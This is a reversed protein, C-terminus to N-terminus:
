KKTLLDLLKTNQNILQDVQNKLRVNEAQLKDVQMLLSDHSAVKEPANNQYTYHRELSRIKVLLDSGSVRLPKALKELSNNRARGAGMMRYIGSENLGTEKVYAKFDAFRTAAMEKIVQEFATHFPPRTTM